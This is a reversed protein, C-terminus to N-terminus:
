PTGETINDNDDSGLSYHSNEEDGQGMADRENGGAVTNTDLDAGSVSTALSGENLADGEDDTHDLEAQRLRSDDVTPMDEDAKALVGREDESVDADNGMIPETDEDEDDDGFLGVGEEDDSSITTDALAGLPPVHINEQGPIDSVDPLDLIVEEPQMREEDHANDPLDKAKVAAARARKEESIQGASKSAEENNTDNM